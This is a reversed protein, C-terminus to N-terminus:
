RKRGILWGIGDAEGSSIVELDPFAELLEGPKMRFRGPGHGVESLAAIALTAGPKLREVMAVDLRPDRFLHCFVLDVPPTTPLGMDLDHVRLTIRDAVGAIEGLRGALDIAVPSVDM